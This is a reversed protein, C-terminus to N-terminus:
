HLLGEELWCMCQSITRDQGFYVQRYNDTYGGKVSRFKTIVTVYSAHRTCTDYLYSHRNLLLETRQTTCATCYNLSNHQHEILYVIGALIYRAIVILSTTVYNCIVAYM